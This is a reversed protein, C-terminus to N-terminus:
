IKPNKTWLKSITPKKVTEYFPNQSQLNTPNIVSICLDGHVYKSVNIMNDPPVLQLLGYGNMISNKLIIFLIVVDHWTSANPYKSSVTTEDTLKNEKEPDNSDCEVDGTFYIGLISKM